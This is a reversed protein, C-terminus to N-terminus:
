DAPHYKADLMRGWVGSYPHVEHVVVGDREVPRGENAWEFIGGQLNYVRTFGADDLRRVVAASRYGVSCYVVIPTDLPIGTPDLADGGPDVRTADAIHSVEYEAPSRADLLLPREAPEARLREALEETRMWAIGPHRLSIMPRLRAAAGDDAHATGSLSLIGGLAVVVLTKSPTM